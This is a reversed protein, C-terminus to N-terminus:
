TGLRGASNALTLKGTGRGISVEGGTLNLTGNGKLGVLFYEAELTGGSVNAVSTSSAVGAIDFEEASLNGGSLNLTGNGFNGVVFEDMSWTGGTMNAMGTSGPEYGLWGEEIGAWTGGAMDLVGTQGASLGATFYDSSSTGGAMQLTGSIINTNGTYTNNGNLTLTGSGNKTLSGAGTIAGGLTQNSNSAIILAGNNTINASYNGGGLLGSVALTGASITTTGTYTNNASLTTTGNGNKTLDGTGSIVGGLTQNSNSALLLTANNTISASYNGGGLLGTMALTGASITTNGTYTNNGTLTLTGTGQKSLSGAGSLIGSYTGNASQDFLVAGSNAINGQLNDANGALTGASVTTGGTYDNSGNLTLTGNGRKAFSGGGAITGNFSLTSDTNFAFSTGAATGVEVASGSVSTVELNGEDIQIGGGAVIVPVSITVNSASGTLHLSPGATSNLTLTVGTGGIGVNGGSSVMLHRVTTNASLTTNATNTANAGTSAFHLDLTAGLNLTANGTTASSNTSWNESGWSTGNNGVWYLDQIAQVVALKLNSGHPKTFFFVENSDFTESNAPGYNNLNETNVKATGALVTFGGRSSSSGNFGSLNSLSFNGFSVSSGNVALSTAPNFALNSGAGLTLNGGLTGNGGLTAGSLVTTPSSGLAGTVLLTGASLTTAGTYNSNGSLTLNGTGLKNITLNGALAPAFTYDANNNLNVTGTGSGGFVRAALLSGTSSGNGLNLTGFSGASKALTLNGTGNGISVVGGTLNLTGNGELGVLFYGAALTGGSVNAVST